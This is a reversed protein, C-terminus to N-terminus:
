EDLILSILNAKTPKSITIIKNLTNCLLILEDKKMKELKNRTPIVPNIFTDCLSKDSQLKNNQSKDNQKPEKIFGELTMVEKFNDNIAIIDKTNYRYITQMTHINKLVNNRQSSYSFIRLDKTVIPEWWDNYRAIYITPKWPNVYDGNYISEIVDNKFDFIIISIDLEKVIMNIDNPLSNMISESDRTHYNTDICYLISSILSINTNMHHTVIGIRYFSEDFINKFKDFSDGIMTMNLPLSFTNQEPMLYKIITEYTIATM